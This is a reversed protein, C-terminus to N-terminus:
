MLKKGSIMKKGMYQYPTQSIKTKGLGYTSDNLLENSIDRIKKELEFAGGETFSKMKGWSQM